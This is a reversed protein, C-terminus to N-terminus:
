ALADIEDLERLCQTYYDYKVKAQKMSLEGDCTLHEPSLEDKLMARLSIRDAQQSIRYSTQIGFLGSLTNAHNAYRIINEYKM